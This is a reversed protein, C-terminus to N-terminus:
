AHQLQKVLKTKSYTYAIFMGALHLVLTSASFGFIFSVFNGSTFEAGHAFGHFGGFFAVIAIIAGMPMRNAFGLLGFIVAISLLIGEEVFLFQAGMFGIVAAVVMATMFAVLTLYGKKSAFFAVMGVGLMALIHDLGSIPHLLGSVFGGSELTSTHAFAFVSLSLLLLLKKM